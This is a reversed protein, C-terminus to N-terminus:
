LKGTTKFHIKAVEALRDSGYKSVFERGAENVAPGSGLPFVMQYRKDLQARAELFQYRSLISAAAVALDREAATREIIQTEPFRRILRAKAKQAKSFQDILVGEAPLGKQLLESIVKEHTWALLDNLNLNQTKFRAILENYKAPKLILTAVQAPFGTYVKRAIDQIRKDNLRKSDQVGLKRLAPMQERKCYFASVILPGFYDGKGCEDSGIWAHWLHLGPQVLEQTEALLLLELEPKLESGDPAGIVKSLGRKESYYLNINAKQSQRQLKLQLGYDIQKQQTIMIGRQELLPILHSLYHQIEKSM